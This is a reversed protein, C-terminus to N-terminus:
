VKINFRKYVVIYKLVGNERVPFVRPSGTKSKENKDEKFSGQGWSKDKSDRTSKESTIERLEGRYHYHTQGGSKGESDCPIFASPAQDLHLRGWERAQSMSSFIEESVLIDNKTETPSTKPVEVEARTM